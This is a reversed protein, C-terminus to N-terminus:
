FFFNFEHVEDRMKSGGPGSAFSYHIFPITVTGSEDQNCMTENLGNLGNLGNLRRSVGLTQIATTSHQTIESEPIWEACSSSSEHLM